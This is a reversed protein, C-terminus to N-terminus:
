WKGKPCRETAMKIKNFIAISSASVVCGCGKCRGKEPDYWECPGAKCHNDLIAKVEEQTRTPRGAKHWRLVAEKYTWLQMSLAPYDIDGQVADMAENIEKVDMGAERMMERVDADTYRIMDETPVIDHHEQHGIAPPRTQACPPKRDVDRVPCRECIGADVEQGNFGCKRNICRLITLGESRKVITQRKRCPQM